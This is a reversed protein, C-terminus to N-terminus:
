QCSGPAVSGGTVFVACFMGAVGNPNNLTMANTMGASANPNVMNAAGVLGNGPSAAAPGASLAAGIVVALCGATVTHKSLM